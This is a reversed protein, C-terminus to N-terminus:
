CHQPLKDASQNDSDSNISHCAAKLEEGRLNLAAKKNTKFALAGSKHRSFDAALDTGYSM